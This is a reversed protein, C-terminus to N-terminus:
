EGCPSQFKTEISNVSVRYNEKREGVGRLPVTQPSVECFFVEHPRLGYAAVIGYVWQWGEKDKLLLRAEEIEEM